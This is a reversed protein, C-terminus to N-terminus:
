CWLFSPFLPVCQQLGENLQLHNLGDAALERMLLPKTWSM